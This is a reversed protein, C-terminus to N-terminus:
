ETKGVGKQPFLITLVHDLVSLLPIPVECVSILKEFVKKREKATDM